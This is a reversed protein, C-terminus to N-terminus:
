LLEGRQEEYIQPLFSALNTYEYVCHIALGRPIRAPIKIFPPLKKKPKRNVIDYGMWFRTRFEIGGDIDRILHCMMVPIAPIFFPARTSRVYGVGAALASVNPAKFLSMDFGYDEPSMFQIRIKDYAGGGIDELVHHALGHNKQSMPVAPDLIRKRAEDSIQLDAHGEPWWIKYRLPELAHWAFWWDVMQSSIGPMKTLCSVYGTGNPMVCWGTEAALYGPKLIDNLNEPFLANSPDIPQEMPALADTSPLVPARDFYAAYPKTREEDTLGAKIAKMRNGRPENKLSSVPSQAIPQLEEQMNM